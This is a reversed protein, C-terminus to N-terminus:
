RGKRFTSFFLQTPNTFPCENRIDKKVKTANIIQVKEIAPCIGALRLVQRIGTKNQIIRFLLNKNKKNGIRM